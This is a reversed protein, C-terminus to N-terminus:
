DDRDDQESVVDALERLREVLPTETLRYLPSNGIKGDREIVGVEELDEHYRYWADRSVGDYEYIASPTFQSSDSGEELVAAVIVIRDGVHAEPRTVPFRGVIRVFVLEVQNTVVTM